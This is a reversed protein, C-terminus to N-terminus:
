RSFYFTKIHYSSLQEHKDVDAIGHEACSVGVAFGQEWFSLSQKQREGDCRRLSEARACHGEKEHAAPRKGSLPKKAQGRGDSSTFTLM